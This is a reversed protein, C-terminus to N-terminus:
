ETLHMKGDDKLVYEFYGQPIYNAVEILGEDMFEWMLQFPQKDSSWKEVLVLGHGSIVTFVLKRPDEPNNLVQSRSFATKIAWSQAETSCSVPYHYYPDDLSVHEVYIPHFSNVGRHGHLKSRTVPVLVNGEFGYDQGLSIRPLPQDMAVLEVAESSPPDNRRGEVHRVLAGLGDGRIGVLVALEDETLNDKEVPRASGTVTAILANLKPDWTAFCGESYQSSVADHVAPVNVLNAVSVMETFFNRKGFEKGARLMAAPTTLREWEEKSAPEQVVQHLTVEQTSAATAIRLALDRYFSDPDKFTTRPHAGVLDFTYAEQPSNDGVVLIIRICMSQSQLLRVLSLMPGGRRGQEHLTYYAREALGPFRYDERDPKIKSLADELSTLVYKMEDGSAHILTFVVPAHDLKFKRRGTLLISDRWNIPMGFPATALIVDSEPGPSDLIQHGHKQLSDLLGAAFIDLVPSRFGPHYAVKIKKLWNHTPKILSQQKGTIM